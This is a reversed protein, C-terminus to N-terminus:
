CSCGGSTQLQFPCGFLPGSTPLHGLPVAAEGMDAGSLELMHKLEQTQMAHFKIFKFKTCSHTVTVQLLIPSMNRITHGVGTWGSELVAGGEGGLFFGVYEMVSAVANTKQRIKLLCYM